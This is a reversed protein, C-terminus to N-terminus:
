GLDRVKVPAWEIMVHRVPAQVRLGWWWACACVSGGLVPRVCACIGTVFESFGLDVGSGRRLAHVAELGM